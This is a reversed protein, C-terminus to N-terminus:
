LAKELSKRPRVARWILFIGFIVFPISLWQGVRLPLGQEYDAQPQKLFEIFLRFAFVSVLFIGFILGRPTNAQWRRYM